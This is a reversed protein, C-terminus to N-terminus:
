NQMWSKDMGSIAGTQTPHDAGRRKQIRVVRAKGTSKEVEAKFEKFSELADSKKNLLCVYGYKSYDDKIVLNDKKIIVMSNKFIVSYGTKDLLAVFILNRRIKPAYLVEPLIWSSGDELQIEYSGVGEVEIKHGNGMYIYEAESRRERLEKLGHDVVSTGEVMKAESLKELLVTVESECISNFKVELSQHIQSASNYREYTPQLSESISGFIIVRAM